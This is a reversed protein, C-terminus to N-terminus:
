RIIFPLSVRYPRGIVPRIRLLTASTADTSIYIFGDPGVTVDRLRGYQGNILMEQEVISRNNIKLRYLRGTKLTVFFLDGSWEPFASGTYFVMDSIAVTSDPNFVAVPAM